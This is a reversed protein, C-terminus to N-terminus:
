RFRRTLSPPTAIHLQTVEHNRMAAKCRTLAKPLLGVVAVAVAVCARVCARVYLEVIIAQLGNTLRADSLALRACEFAILVM